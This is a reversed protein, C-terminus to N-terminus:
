HLQQAIFDEIARREAEASEVFEVGIQTVRGKKPDTVERTHVIRGRTELVVGHLRVEMDFITGEPPTTETELLLGSASITKVVFPYETDLDVPETLKLKFRGSIRTDLAIIATAELFRTLEQAKETLVDEFRFGAHYVSKTEGGDTKRIGRLHCWVVAGSLRLVFDAGHKLTLSYSRGVRMQTDTEVAMGTLSMNIIKAGSSFHLTGEVDNVQHRPHRRREKTPMTEMTVSFDYCFGPNVWGALTAKRARRVMGFRRSNGLNAHWNFVAVRETSVPRM